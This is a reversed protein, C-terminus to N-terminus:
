LIKQSLTSILRFHFNKGGSMMLKSYGKWSQWQATIPREKPFDRMKFGNLDPTCISLFADYDKGRFAKYLAQVIELNNM